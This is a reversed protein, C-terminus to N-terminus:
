VTSHYTSHSSTMSSGPGPPTPHPHPDFSSSSAQGANYFFRTPMSCYIAPQSPTPPLTGPLPVAELGSSACPRTCHSPRHCLTGLVGSSVTSPAGVAQNVAQCQGATSPRRGRRRFSAQLVSLPFGCDLSLHQLSISCPDTILDHQGAELILWVLSIKGETM